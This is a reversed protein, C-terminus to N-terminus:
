RRGLLIFITAIGAIVAIVILVGVWGWVTPTTVTIRLKMDSLTEANLAMVKIEYDGAITNSAPTLVMDSELIQKPEMSAILEPNFSIGWGQPVNASFRVDDLAVSSDNGVRVGIHNDKGATVEANLRTTSTNIFTEYRATVVATLEITDAIDGSSAQLTILYRGPTRDRDVNRKIERLLHPALQVEDITIPGTGALFGVPDSEALARDPISDLTTYRRTRAIPEELVLTSKGVQRPGVLAVVPFVTLMEQLSRMFVRSIM